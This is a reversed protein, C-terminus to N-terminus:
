TCIVWLGYLVVGGGRGGPCCEPGVKFEAQLRRHMGNCVRFDGPWPRLRSGAHMRNNIGM